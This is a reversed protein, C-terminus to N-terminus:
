HQTKLDEYKGVGAELLKRHDDLNETLMRRYERTFFEFAAQRDADFSPLDGVHSAVVFSNFRAAAYLLAMGVHERQANALHENALHIFTDVLRRFEKDGEPNSM